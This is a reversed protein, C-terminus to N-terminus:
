QSPQDPHSEADPEAGTLVADPDVARVHREIRDSDEDEGTRWVSVFSHTDEEGPANVGAEYGQAKLREVVEVALDPRSMQFEPM